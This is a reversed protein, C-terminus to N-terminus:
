GRSAGENVRLLLQVISFNMETTLCAVARMGREDMESLLYDLGDLVEADYVGPATQLPPVIRWPETDPGESGAMIRLNTLGLSRLTDLERCLRERDGGTGASGLNMGYWYNIGAYLYPEGNLELMTGDTEVFGVNDASCSWVMVSWVLLAVCIYRM